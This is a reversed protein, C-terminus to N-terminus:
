QKNEKVLYLTSTIEKGDDNIHTARLEMRTGTKDISVALNEDETQGTASTKEVEAGYDTWYKIFGKTEAEKGPNAKINSADLHYKKGPEHVICLTDGRLEWTGKESRTFEAIGTFDPSTVHDLAIKRFKHDASFEFYVEVDKEKQRYWKGVLESEKLSYGTQEQSKVYAELEKHLKACSERIHAPFVSQLYTFCLARGYRGRGERLRLDLTV